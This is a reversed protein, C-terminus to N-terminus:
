LINQSHNLSHVSLIYTPIMYLIFYDKDKQETDSAELRRGKAKQRDFRLTSGAIPARRTNQAYM